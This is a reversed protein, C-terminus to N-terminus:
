QMIKEISKCNKQAAIQDKWAIDLTLFIAFNKTTLGQIRPAGQLLIQNMLYDNEAKHKNVKGEGRKSIHESIVAKVISSGWYEQKTLAFM